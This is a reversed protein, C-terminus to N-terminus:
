KDDTQDTDLSEPKKYFRHHTKNKCKAFLPLDKKNGYILAEKKKRSWNKVQQEREFAEEVCKFEEFYVLKVPLHKSTFNSGRGAQHEEIRFKLDNTSGVYYWGRACELIYMYGAM